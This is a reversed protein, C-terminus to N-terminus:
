LWCPNTLIRPVRDLTYFSQKSAVRLTAHSFLSAKSLFNASFPPTWIIIPTLITSENKKKKDNKKQAVSVNIPPPPDTM